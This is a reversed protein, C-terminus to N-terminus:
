QGSPDDALGKLIGKMQERQAQSAVTTSGDLSNLDTSTLGVTLAFVERHFARATKEEWTEDPDADPDPPPPSTDKIERSDGEAPPPPPAAAKAPDVPKTAEGCALQGGDPGRLCARLTDNVREVTVVFGHADERLRPSRAILEAARMATPDGQQGRVVAPITLGLRRIAGGDKQMVLAYFRMAAQDDGSRRAAEAGIAATRAALLAESKPLGKTARDAAAQARADYGEALEVEADYADYYPALGPTAKDEDRGKTLVVEAVGAGVVDVLDGALWTPLPELGGTLYPRFTSDLREDDTLIARVREEDAWAAARRGAAIATWKARRGISSWSAREM